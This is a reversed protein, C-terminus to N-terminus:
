RAIAEIAALLGAAKDLTEQLEREPESQAVIGGGVSFRWWGGGATITRILLNLEACGDAGIFGLSGCYAGRATPELESIIETARIKPAGTVSGGPFVAAILDGIDASPSLRGEVASVLHIVHRYEEIACLQRIAISEPRCVRSLDNRLLDVIMINEARDKESALLLCASEADVAPDGCRRRTGKIPRTHVIGDDVKLFLEPSASVIQCRGLDFYGGFPAGDCRRVNLYLEDARCRSPVILEQALNVQFVDGARIYDIARQVAALYGEHSFTSRVGQLSGCPYRPATLVARSASDATAPSIAAAVCSESPREVEGAALFRRFFEWREQAVAPRQSPTEAPWGRSIGWARRQFHDFAFVVDYVGMAVAPMALENYRAEPLEEFAHRLEYSLLGAAGGQFPPLGPLSPSHIERLMAKLEGLCDTGAAPTEIWRWPAAALYSYRGLSPHVAASDLFVCHPLRCFLPFVDAPDLWPLEVACDGSPSVPVVSPCCWALSM